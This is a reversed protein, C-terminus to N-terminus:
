AHQTGGTTRRYQTLEQALGNEARRQARGLDSRWRQKQQALADLKAQASRFVQLAKAVEAEADAVRQEAQAVLESQREIRANLLLIRQEVRAYGAPDCEGADVVNAFYQQQTARQDGLDVQQRRAADREVRRAALETQRMQVERLARECRVGRAAILPELPYKRSM